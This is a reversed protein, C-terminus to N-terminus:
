GAKGFGKVSSISSQKEMWVRGTRMDVIKDVELSRAEVKEPVANPFM